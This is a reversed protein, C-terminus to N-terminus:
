AADARRYWRSAAPLFLLALAVGQVAFDVVDRATAWPYSAFRQGLDGVVLEDGALLAFLVALMVRPWRRRWLPLAAIALELVMLALVGGSFATPWGVSPSTFAYLLATALPGGSAVAHFVLLGVAWRVCAPVAGPPADGDILV